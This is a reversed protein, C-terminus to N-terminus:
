QIERIQWYNTYNKVKVLSITKILEIPTRLESYHM